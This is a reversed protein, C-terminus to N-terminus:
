KATVLETARTGAQAVVKVAAGKLQDAFRKVQATLWLTARANCGDLVGPAQAATREGHQTASHEVHHRLIVGTSVCASM